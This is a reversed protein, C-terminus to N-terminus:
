RTREQRVTVSVHKTNPLVFKRVEVEAATVPFGGLLHSTLDSAITEILKWDRAQVLERCTRCIDVYNVTQGIDDQLTEFSREPWVTIDLTIRQPQSREKETVGVRASVELEEISIRDGPYDTM